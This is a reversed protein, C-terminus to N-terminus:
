NQLIVERSVGTNKNDNSLDDSLCKVYYNVIWIQHLLVRSALLDVLKFQNRGCHLALKVWAHCSRAQSQCVLITDVISCFQTNKEIWYENSVGFMVLTEKTNKSNSMVSIHLTNWIWNSAFTHCSAFIHTWNHCDFSNRSTCVYRLLHDYYKNM